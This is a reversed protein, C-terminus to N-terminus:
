SAYVDQNYLESLEHAIKSIKELSEYNLRYYINKGDRDDIVINQRRLIGLHFSVVSQEEDLSHHIETVNTTGHTSLFRIIRRRLPNYVARMRRAAKKLKHPDIIPKTAPKM